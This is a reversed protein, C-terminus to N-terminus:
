FKGISERTFRLAETNKMQVLASESFPSNNIYWNIQTLIIFAELM